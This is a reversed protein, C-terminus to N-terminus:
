QRHHRHGHQQREGRRAHMETEHRRRSEEEEDESGHQEEVQQGHFPHFLPEEAAKGCLSASPHLIPFGIRTIAFRAGLPAGPSGSRLAAEVEHLFIRLVPKVLGVDHHLFYRLRKPLSLVWQPLLVQSFVHDVVHAATEAM